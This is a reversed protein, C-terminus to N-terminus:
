PTEAFRRGLLHDLDTSGSMINPNLRFIHNLEDKLDEQGKLYAQVGLDAGLKFCQQSSRFNETRKSILDERAKVEEQLRQEANELKKFLDEAETTKAALQDDLSKTEFESCQRKLKEDELFKELAELQKKKKQEAAKVRACYEQALEHERLIDSLRQLGRCFDKCMLAVRQEPACSSNTARDRHLYIGDILQRAYDVKDDLSAKSPITWKPNFFDPTMSQVQPEINDKMHWPHRPPVELHDEGPSESSLEVPTAVPVPKTVNMAFAERKSSGASHEDTVDRKQLLKETEEKRKALKVEKLQARAKSSVAAPVRQNMQKMEVATQVELERDDDIYMVSRHPSVGSHDEAPVNSSHDERPPTSSHDGTPAHSARHERPPNSSYDDEPANSSRDEGTEYLYRNVGTANSSQQVSSSVSVPTLIVPVFTARKSLGDSPNVTAEGVSKELQQGIHVGTLDKDTNKANRVNQAAASSATVSRIIHRTRGKLEMEERPVEMRRTKSQNELGTEEGGAGYSDGAGQSSVVANGNIKRKRGKLPRQKRNGQQIGERVDCHELVAVAQRAAHLVMKKVELKDEKAWHNEPLLRFEETLRICEPVNEPSVFDVAVKICSKLNRVQHPCGAPIFVAEGLKQVFTWPVIGYEEKLKRKHYENLYFTEDQIPHVVQPVLSCYIHRFERYHKKLYEQLLPVDQRRFVDWLAGGEAFGPVAMGEETSFLSQGVSPYEYQQADDPPDSINKISKTVGYIESQDQAIHKEKLREMPQLQRPTLGTEATHFLINVADSMNYHLKTVSDGRGLEQAVGYAIYTKPGMDPKLSYQPLKTALNVIGCHPHTYEKFPLARVFEVGHRPLCKEFETSPPWDKLKLMQPWGHSDFPVRLYNMFFTRINVDVESYDLCDIAEVSIQRSHERSSIQRFARWMVMPEWSLGPTLELVNRVLVPDGRAWHWQFHKLDKACIDIAAPCYLYDDKTDGRSAGKRVDVSSTDDGTSSGFCSCSEDSPKSTDDAAFAALVKSAQKALKNVDIPFVSQLELFCGDCGGYEIPPCFISGDANPKWKKGDNECHNRAGLVLVKKCTSSNRVASNANSGFSRSVNEKSCTRSSSEVGDIGFGHLYALGRDKYEMVVGQAGGQPHGDRIERCCILCLDYSCRPCRRHFDFISSKCYNCYMREDRPCNFKKVQLESLLLGQITAEVERERLQEENLLKLSPMIAQLLFLNHQIKDEESINLNLTKRILELNSSPLQMRLCAKCNCKQCCVPCAASIAEETLCPYWRQICPICYRKLKCKTCRVVRGNDNRQCQHCMNSVFMGEDNGKGRSSENAKAPADDVREQEQEAANPKDAVVSTEGIRHHKRKHHSRSGKNSEEKSRM